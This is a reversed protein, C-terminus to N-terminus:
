QKGDARALAADARAVIEDFYTGIRAGMRVLSERTSKMAATSEKLAAYMEPAAVILCANARNNEAARGTDGHHAIELGDEDEPRIYGLGDNDFPEYFQWPGPTFKEAM